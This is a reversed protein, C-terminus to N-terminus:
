IPSADHRCCCLNFKQKLEVLIISTMGEPTIKDVYTVIRYALGYSVEAQRPFVMKDETNCSTM